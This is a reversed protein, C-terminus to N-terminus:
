EGSLRVRTGFRLMTNHIRDELPGRGGDSERITLLRGVTPSFYISWRDTLLREVRVNGSLYLSSNELLGGGQFFGQTPDLIESTGASERGGVGKANRNIIENLDALTIDPPLKVQSGLVVNMAMGVGASVRWKESRSIERQYGLPISVTQYTLRSYRIQHEQQIGSTDEEILLIKAPVYSRQGYILGFQLANNGQVAEILAGASFGTTIKHHAEIGLAANEQTVVDNLDLPSVFGNLYYRVPDNGLVGSLDPLPIFRPSRKQLPEIGNALPEVVSPRLRVSPMSNAQVLAPITTSGPLQPIPAPLREATLQGPFLDSGTTGDLTNLVPPPTDFGPQLPFASANVEAYPSASEGPGFRHGFRAYLLLLSLLLTAETIKLCTIMERRRGILELRAALLTWGSVTVPEARQLGSAVVADMAREGDAEVTNLKEAFANWSGPPPTAPALGGLKEAVAEDHAREDLRASLTEWGGAPPPPLSAIRQRILEDFPHNEQKM